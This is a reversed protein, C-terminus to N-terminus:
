GGGPLNEGSCSYDLTTSCARLTAHSSKTRVRIQVTQAPVDFSSFHLTYTGDSIHRLELHGAKDTRARLMHWGASATVTVGVLPQGTTRRKDQLRKLAIIIGASPPKAAPRRFEAASLSIDDHADLGWGM